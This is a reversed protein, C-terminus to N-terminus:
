EHVNSSVAIVFSVCSVQGIPCFLRETAAVPIADKHKEPTSHSYFNAGQQVTDWCSVTHQKWQLMVSKLHAMKSVIGDMWMIM